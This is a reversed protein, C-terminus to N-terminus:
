RFNLNSIKELNRFVETLDQLLGRHHLPLHKQLFLFPHHHGFTQLGVSWAGAVVESFVSVSFCVCVCWKYFCREKLEKGLNQLLFALVLFYNHTLQNALKSKSTM